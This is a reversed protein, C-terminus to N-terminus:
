RLALAKLQWFHNKRGFLTLRPPGGADQAAWLTPFGSLSLCAVSTGGPLVDLLRRLAVEPGVLPARDGARRACAVHLSGVHPHKLMWLALSFLARGSASPARVAPWFAGRLADRCGRSACELAALGRRGPAGAALLAAVVADLADGALRLEPSAM